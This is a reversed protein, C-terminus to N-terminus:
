TAVSDLCRKFRPLGIAELALFGQFVLFPAYLSVLTTSVSSVVAATELDRSKAAASELVRIADIM